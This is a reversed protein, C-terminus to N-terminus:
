NLSVVTMFRGEPEDCRASRYHSYYEDAMATDVPDIDINAALVGAEALQACLYGCLDVRTAGDPLTSLYPEWDPDLQQEAKELVYSEPHIGPGIRVEVDKPNTGFWETLSAIVKKPLALGTPRWGCHALAVVRHKPDYFSVPFCDATMLALVVDKENTVLAEGKVLQGCKDKGVRVVTDAHEPEMLVVDAKDVGAKEYFASRNARVEHEPGWTESMNGDAKNSVRYLYGEM